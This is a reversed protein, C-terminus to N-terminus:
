VCNEKDELTLKSVLDVINVISTSNYTHQFVNGVHDRVTGDDHVVVDELTKVLKRQIYGSTSTNISTDIVGERGSVAHYWFEKPNARIFFCM